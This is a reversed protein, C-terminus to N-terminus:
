NDKDSPDDTSNSGNKLSDLALLGRENLEGNGDLFGLMQLDIKNEMSITNDKGIDVIDELYTNRNGAKQKTLVDRNRANNRNYCDRRSQKSKHLNKRPQKTNFSANTYEETFKNLWKKERESLKHLYDYDIAETRSKLNLTVDLAPYKERERRNRPSRRKTSSKKTMESTKKQSGNRTTNARKKSAAREKAM